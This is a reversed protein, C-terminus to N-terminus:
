KGRNDVVHEADGGGDRSVVAQAAAGVTNRVATTGAGILLRRGRRM